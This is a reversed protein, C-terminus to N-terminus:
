FLKMEGNKKDQQRQNAKSMLIKILKKYYLSDDGRFMCNKECKAQRPNEMSQLCIDEKIEQINKQFPVKKSTQLNM